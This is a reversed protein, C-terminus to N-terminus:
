VRRHPDHASERKKKKQTEQTLPTPTQLATCTERHGPHVRKKIPRPMTVLSFSCNWGVWVCACLIALLLYRGIKRGIIAATQGGKGWRCERRAREFTHLPFFFAHTLSTMRILVGRITDQTGVHGVKNRAPHELWAEHVNWWRDAEQGWLLSRPLYRAATQYHGYKSTALLQPQRGHKCLSPKGLPYSYLVRSTKKM